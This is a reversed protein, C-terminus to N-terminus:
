IGHLQISFCLLSGTRNSMADYITTLGTLRQMRSASPLMAKKKLQVYTNENNDTITASKTRQFWEDEDYGPSMYAIGRLRAQVPCSAAVGGHNTLDPTMSVTSTERITGDIPDINEVHISCEDGYANFQLAYWVGSSYNVIDQHAHLQIHLIKDLTPWAIIIGGSGGTHLFGIKPGRAVVIDREPHQMIHDMLICRRTTKGCNDLPCPIERERCTTRHKTSSQIPLKQKCDPCNWKLGMMIAQKHYPSPHFGKDDRCVCCDHHRTVNRIHLCVRCLPHGNRCTFTEGVEQCISCTIHEEIYNRIKKLHTARFWNQIRHAAWSDEMGRNVHLRLPLCQCGNIM